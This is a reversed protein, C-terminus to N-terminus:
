SESKFKEFMRQFWMGFPVGKDEGEKSYEGIPTVIFDNRPTMFLAMVFRESFIKEEMTPMRVRHRTSQVRGGTMYKLLEGANVVLSDEVSTVDIWSNPDDPDDNPNLLVQLAGKSHPDQYLVSIGAVDSHPAMRLLGKTNIEEDTPIPYHILKLVTTTNGSFFGEKISIMDINMAEGIITLLFEGIKLM